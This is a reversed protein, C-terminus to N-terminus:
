DFQASKKKLFDIEVELRGIKEYLAQADHDDEQHKKQTRGDVFINPLNELLQAKWKSIVTSHVKFQAALQSLTKEQKVAALAVKAKFTPPHTIRKKPM